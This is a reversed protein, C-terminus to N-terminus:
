EKELNFDKMKRFLTRRDVGLSEATPGRKWNNKKLANLLYAKEFRSLAETLSLAEEPADSASAAQGPNEGIVTDGLHATGLSLYQYLVNQLERVNGPWDYLMFAHLMESDMYEFRKNSPYAKLFHEVLLPIDSKRERLPPLHIPIVHIRYYFDRRMAGENVRELLNRNTAAIIRVNPRHIQSGGVPTFGGHEIARLLKVQGMLSIEGLEDLFLTGGDAQDLYGKKDATAGTFAGKKYGFLESEFLSEPIAGCNVAVFPRQYRASGDHIARAVLEKGTGSEGYVVVNDDVAAARAILDFVATIQPSSGVIDGSCRAKLRNRLEENEQRITNDQKQKETVDNIFGEVLLPGEPGTAYVGAGQEWVWKEEGWSTVIRYTLEFPEKNGLATELTASVHERDDAHVLSLLGMGDPGTFDEPTYGTLRAVGQSVFRVKRDPTHEGQYALGPLNNMLTELQRSKEHLEMGILMNHSELKERLRKITVHTRVRALVEDAHFPKTVYDVGGVEFGHHKQGPAEMVSLFIVPIPETAPDEKLCRCVEFGDMEPMLIDLLILDPQHSRALELARKGNKAIILFYDQELTQVLIDLNVPDDDVVLVVPKNSQM